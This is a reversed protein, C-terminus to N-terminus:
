TPTASWCRRPSTGPLQWVTRDSAQSEALETIAHHRLDHFRLGALVSKVKKLDAKCESNGCTESPGQQRGCAPCQILRTLNLWPTRWSSQPRTADFHSAEEYPFYINRQVIGGKPDNFLAKMGREFNEQAEPGETYEPQKM